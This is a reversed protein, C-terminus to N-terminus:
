RVLVVDADGAIGCRSGFVLPAAVRADGALLGDRPDAVLTVGGRLGEVRHGDVGILVDIGVVDNHVKESVGRYLGGFTLLRPPRVGAWKGPCGEGLCIASLAHQQAFLPFRSLIRSLLAM